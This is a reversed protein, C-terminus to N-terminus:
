SLEALCTRLRAVIEPSSTAINHVEDPDSDIDFLRSEEGEWGTVLKFRGDFAVRWGDLGSYVVERHRDTTGRLFPRLTRSDLGGPDLGAFDLFTAALDLYTAPGDYRIGSRVGLGRGRVVLPVNISAGYPRSKGWCQRDGLMEGHDSSYVILTNELEGAQTLYDVMRGLWRDINTCMAAYNQRCRNIAARGVTQNLIAPPFEVRDYDLKM